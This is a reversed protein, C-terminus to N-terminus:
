RNKNLMYKSQCFNYRPLTIKRIVYCSQLDFNSYLFFNPTSFCTYLLVHQFLYWSLPKNLFDVNNIIILLVNEKTILAPYSSPPVASFFYMVLTNHLRINWFPTCHLLHNFFYYRIYTNIYIGSCILRSYYKILDGLLLGLPWM